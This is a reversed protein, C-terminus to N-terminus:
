SRDLYLLERTSNVITVAILEGDIVRKRLKCAEQGIGKLSM